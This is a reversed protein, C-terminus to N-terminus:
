AVIYIFSLYAGHNSGTRDRSGDPVARIALGALRSSEDQLERATSECAEMPM